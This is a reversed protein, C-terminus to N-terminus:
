KTSASPVASKPDNEIIFTGGTTTYDIIPLGPALWDTDAAGSLMINFRYNNFPHFHMDARQYTTYGSASVEM